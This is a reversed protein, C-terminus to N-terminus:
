TCTQFHIDNNTWVERLRAAVLKQDSLDIEEKDLIEDIGNGKHEYDNNNNMSVSFSARSIDQQSNEPTSDSVIDSEVTFRAVYRSARALQLKLQQVTQ